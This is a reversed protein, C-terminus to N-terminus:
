PSDALRSALQGFRDGFLLRCHRESHQYLLEFSAEELIGGEFTLIRPRAYRGLGQIQGCGFHEDPAAFFVHGIKAV